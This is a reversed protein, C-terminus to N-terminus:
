YKQTEVNYRLRERHLRFLAVRAYKRDELPEYYFSVYFSFVVSQACAPGAVGGTAPM